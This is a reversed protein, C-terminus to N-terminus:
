GRVKRMRAAMRRLVDLRMAALRLFQEAENTLRVYVEDDPAARAAELAESALQLNDPQNTM